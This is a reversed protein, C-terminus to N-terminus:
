GPGGRATQPSRLRHDARRQHVPRRERGLGARAAARRQRRRGRRRRAGGARRVAQPHSAVHPGDRVGGPPLLGARARRDHPVPPRTTPAAGTGAGAAAAGARPFAFPKTSTTTPVSGRGPRRTTWATRPPSCSSRPHRQRCRRDAERRGRRGVPGPIDRDLVAIDYTNLDLLELATDGDAAVDAAIAELRLGDRIPRVGDPLEDEVVLVRMAGISPVPPRTTPTDLLASARRLVGRARAISPMRRVGVRSGRGSRAGDEGSPGGRSCTSQPVQSRDDEVTTSAADRTRM